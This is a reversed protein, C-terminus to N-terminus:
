KKKLIQPDPLEIDPIGSNPDSKADEYAERMEKFYKVLSNLNQGPDKVEAEGEVAKYSIIDVNDIKDGTSGELYQIFSLDKVFDSKPNQRNHKIFIHKIETIQGKSDRVEEQIHDYGLELWQKEEFDNTLTLIQLLYEQVNKSPGNPESDKEKKPPDPEKIPPDVKDIEEKKGSDSDAEHVYKGLFLDLRMPIFYHQRVGSELKDSRVIVIRNKEIDVEAVRVAQPRGNEDLKFSGDPNHELWRQLKPLEGPIKRQDINKEWGPKLGPPLDPLRITKNYYNALREFWSKLKTRDEPVHGIAPTHGYEDFEPHGFGFLLQSHIHEEAEELSDIFRQNDAKIENKNKKEAAATVGETALFPAAVAGVSVLQTIISDRVMDTARESLQTRLADEIAKGVVGPDLVSNHVLETTTPWVDQVSGVLHTDIGTAHFIADHVAQYNGLQGSQELAHYLPDGAYYHYVEGYNEGVSEIARNVDGQEIVFRWAGDVQKVTHEISDGDLDLRIGGHAAQAEAGALEQQYTASQPDTLDAAHEAVHGHELLANTISGGIAGILTLSRSILSARKEMKEYRKSIGAEPKGAKAADTILNLMAQARLNQDDEPLEDAEQARSHFALIQDLLERAVAENFRIGETEPQEQNEANLQQRTLRQWLTRGGTPREEYRRLMRTRIFEGGLRGAAGGALGAGVTAWSLPGGFIAIAGAIAVSAGGSIGMKKLFDQVVPAHAFRSLISEEDLQFNEGTTSTAASLKLKRLMQEFNKFGRASLFMETLASREACSVLDETIVAIDEPSLQEIQGLKWQELNIRALERRADQLRPELLAIQQDPTLHQEAPEADHDQDAPEDEGGAGARLNEIRHLLNRYQAEASEKSSNAIEARKQTRKDLQTAREQSRSEKSNSPTPEPSNREEQDVSRGETEVM